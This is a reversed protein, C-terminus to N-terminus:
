TPGTGFRRRFEEAKDRDDSKADDRIKQYDRLTNAYEDKTVYEEKYGKKVEDLSDKDGARASLMFHQMARYHNGADGEMSGLNYRANVSGNMAALELAQSEETWKLMTQAWKQPYSRSM